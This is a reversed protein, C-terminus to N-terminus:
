LGLIAIEQNLKIWKIGTSTLIWDTRDDESANQLKPYWALPFAQPKGGDVEVHLMGNNFTVKIDQKQKRSTFIPM